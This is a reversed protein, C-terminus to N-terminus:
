QPPSTFFMDQSVWCDDEGLEITDIEPPQVLRVNDTSGGTARLIIQCNVQEHRGSTNLIYVTYEGNSEFELVYRWWHAGGGAMILEVSRTKTVGYVEEYKDEENEEDTDNEVDAIRKEDAITQNM